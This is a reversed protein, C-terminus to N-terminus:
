TNLICSMKSYKSTIRLLNHRHGQQVHILQVLISVYFLSTNIPFCSWTMEVFSKCFQSHKPLLLDDFCIVLNIVCSINIVEWLWLTLIQSKLRNINSYHCMKAAKKILMKGFNWFFLHIFKTCSLKSVM